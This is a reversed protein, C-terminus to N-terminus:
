GPSSSGLEVSEHECAVVEDWNLDVSADVISFKTRLDCHVGSPGMRELKAAVSIAPCYIENKIGNEWSLAETACTNPLAVELPRCRRM